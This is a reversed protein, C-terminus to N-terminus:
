EDDPLSSPNDEDDPLEEPHLMALLVPVDRVKAWAATGVARVNTGETLEGSSAMARLEALTFPGLLTKRVSLHWAAALSMPMPVPQSRTFLATLSDPTFREPVIRRKNMARLNPPDDMNMNADFPDTDEVSGEIEVTWAPLADLLTKQAVEPDGLGAAGEMQRFRTLSREAAEVAVRYLLGPRRESRNEDIQIRRPAYAHQGTWLLLASAALVQVPTLMREFRDLAATVQQRHSDLLGDARIDRESGVDEWDNYGLDLKYAAEPGSNRQLVGFCVARVFLGMVRRMDEIEESSPVVPNAFRVRIKQAANADTDAQDIYLAEFSDGNQTAFSSAETLAGSTDHADIGTQSAGSM